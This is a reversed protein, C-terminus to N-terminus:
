RDNCYNNNLKKVYLQPKCVEEQLQVMYPMSGWIKNCNWFLLIHLIWIHLSHRSHSYSQFLPLKHSTNDLQKNNDQQIQHVKCHLFRESNKRDCFVFNHTNQMNLIHLSYSCNWLCQFTYGINHMTLKIAIETWFTNILAVIIINHM